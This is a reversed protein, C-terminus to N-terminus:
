GPIIGEDRPGAGSAAFPSTRAQANGYFAYVLWRSPEQVVTRGPDCSGGTRRTRYGSAGIGEKGGRTFVGMLLMRARRQSSLRRRKRRPAPAATASGRSSAM